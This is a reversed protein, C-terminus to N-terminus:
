LSSRGTVRQDDPLGGVDPRRRCLRPLDLRRATLRVEPLAPELHLGGVGVLGALGLAFWVPYYQLTVVVHHGTFTVAALAHAAPLPIVERLRGFVFWRWYFEEIFSHVLTIFVAFLIFNELFGLSEM